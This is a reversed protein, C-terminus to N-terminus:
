TIQANAQPVKGWSCVSRESRRNVSSTIGANAPLAVGTVYPLAAVVLRHSLCSGSREEERTPCQYPAAATPVPRNAPRTQCFARRYGQVDPQPRAHPPDCPELHVEDNTVTPPCVDSTASPCIPPSPHIDNRVPVPVADPHAAHDATLPELQTLDSIIGDGLVRWVCHEDGDTLGAHDQRLRLHTLRSRSAASAKRCAASRRSARAASGM